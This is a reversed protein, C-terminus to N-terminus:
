KNREFKEWESALKQWKNITNERMILVPSFPSM